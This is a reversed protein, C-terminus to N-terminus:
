EEEGKLKVGLRRALMIIKAIRSQKSEFASQPAFIKEKDEAIYHGSERYRKMKVSKLTRGTKEVIEEDSMTKLMETEEKTWKM